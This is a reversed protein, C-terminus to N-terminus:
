HHQRRGAAHIGSEEGDVTPSPRGRLTSTISTMASWCVVALFEELLCYYAVKAGALSLRSVPRATLPHLPLQEPAPQDLPIPHLPLRERLQITQHHPVVLTMGSASLWGGGASELEVTAVALHAAVM